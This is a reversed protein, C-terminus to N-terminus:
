RCKDYRDVTADGLQMDIPLVLFCGSVSIVSVFSALYSAIDVKNDSNGIEGLEENDGAEKKLTCVENTEAGANVLRFTNKKIIKKIRKAVADDMDDDWSINQSQDSM